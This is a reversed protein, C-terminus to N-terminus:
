AVVGGLLGALVYPLAARGVPNRCAVLCLVAALTLAVNQPILYTESLGGAAFTLVASVAVRWGAGSRTSAAVWGVYLTALVLPLVYTLMGTQWYLSQARDPTTQFTAFAILLALVAPTPVGASPLLQRLTWILAALWGCIAAAPLWPVIGPGVLEALTVLLTFTYRPSYGTYYHVQAQVVGQLNLIGAWCYDDAAYRSFGGTWGYVLLPLLLSAALLTAGLGALSVTARPPVEPRAVTVVSM